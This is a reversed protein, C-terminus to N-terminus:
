VVRIPGPYRGLQADSTLLILGELTAQALLLRDFPDKHIAPLGGVAAAHEGSVPVEVYGNDLLARRLIHPDVAFDLRRLAFKIAVEWISAASFFLANAPDDILEDAGRQDGPADSAASWILLHTDLLLNL